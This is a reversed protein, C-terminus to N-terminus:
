IIIITFTKIISESSGSYNKCWIYRSLIGCGKYKEFSYVSCIKSIASYSLGARTTNEKVAQGEM